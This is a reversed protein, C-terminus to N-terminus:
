KRNWAIEDDVKHNESNNVSDHKTQPVMHQWKYISVYKAKEKMNNGRKPLNAQLFYALTTENPTTVTGANPCRNKKPKDIKNASNSCVHLMVLCKRKVYCMRMISRTITIPILLISKKFLTHANDRLLFYFWFGHMPYNLNLAPANDWLQFYFEYGNLFNLWSDPIHYVLTDLLYYHQPVNQQYHCIEFCHSM